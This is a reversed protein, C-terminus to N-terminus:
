RVYKMPDEFFLRGDRVYTYHKNYGVISYWALRKFLELDGPFADPEEMLPLEMSKKAWFRAPGSLAKLKPNITDLPIRSPVCDYPTFDPKDTFCDNMPTALLDLQNMMPLGLVLEITKLLGCLNYCESIVQKRKTYPSVVFCISRSGAVHDSGNWPDDETCFIVTKPWFKSHSVADVIMGLAMDNDAVQSPASPYEPRSGSTHNNPLFIMTVNPLNGEREFKKLDDIFIQARRVDPIVYGYGPFYPRTHPRLSTINAKARITM